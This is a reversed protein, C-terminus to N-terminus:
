RLQQKLEKILRKISGTLIPCGLKKFEAKFWSDVSYYGSGSVSGVPIFHVGRERVSKVMPLLDRHEYFDSIWVMTTRHPDSIHERAERMALPGDNGGGLNTRMLAEFPDHVWPTLDIVSTDFAILSVKVRPLAAFISALIACQTMENVMSGSQDVVVILYNNLETQATHKYFLEDVYIKGDKPNYNPLNKWLTRKLDLNRFVRRPPVSRDIKGTATSNVQKKLAEALADVYKRILQRANALAKGSLNTKDYLLQEVVAATPTIQKALEDDALVERLDMRQVLDSEMAILEERLEEDGILHRVGGPGGGPGGKEGLGPGSGVPGLGGGLGMFQAMMAADSKWQSYQQATCRASRANPGFVNLVLKSFALTRALNADVAGAEAAEAGAANDEYEEGAEDESEASQPDPTTIARVEEFAPVLRKHRHLLMEISISPDLVAAPVDERAAAERLMGDFSQVAEGQGSCLGLLRWYAIQREKMKEDDSM